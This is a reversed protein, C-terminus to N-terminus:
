SVALNVANKNRIKKIPLLALKDPAIEGAAIKNILTKEALRGIVSRCRDDYQQNLASGAAIFIKKETAKAFKVIEDKTLKPAMSNLKSILVDRVPLRARQARKKDREEKATLKKRVPKSPEIHTSNKKKKTAALYTVHRADSRRSPPKDEDLIPAKKPQDKKTKSKKSM